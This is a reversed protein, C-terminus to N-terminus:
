TFTLPGQTMASVLPWMADNGLECPAGVMEPVPHLKAAFALSLLPAMTAVPASVQVTVNTAAHSWTGNQATAPYEAVTSGYTEVAAVVAATTNWVAAAPV